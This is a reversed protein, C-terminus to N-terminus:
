DLYDTAMTIFVAAQVTFQYIFYFSIFSCSYFISRVFLSYRKRCYRSSYYFIFNKRYSIEQIFCEGIFDIDHGLYSSSDEIIDRVLGYYLFHPPYMVTGEIISRVIVMHDTLDTHYPLQFELYFVWISLVVVGIDTVYRVMMLKFKNSM